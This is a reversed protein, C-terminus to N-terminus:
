RIITFTGATTKWNRNSGDIYRVYYVYAGQPLPKGDYTGDWEETLGDFHALRRGVRDFIYVEAVEIDKSCFLRFRRNSEIDGNPTIVNPALVFITDQPPPPDPTPPTGRELITLDYFIISDCEDGIDIHVPYGRTEYTFTVGNFVWPLMYDLVTDSFSTCHPCVVLDIQWLTDCGSPYGSTTLYHTDTTELVHGRFTFPGDCETVSLSMDIHDRVRIYAFMTDSPRTFVSKCAGYGWTTDLAEDMYQIIRKVEFRGTDAFTHSVQQGDEYRYREVVGDGYDWIISDAPREVWGHFQMPDYMCWITDEPLSDVPVDNVELYNKGRQLHAYSYVSHEGTKEADAVVWFPGGQRNEVFHQARTYTVLHSFYHVYAYSYPTGPIETFMTDIPYRNFYMGGVDATRTFIHMSHYYSWGNRNEDVWFTQGGNAPGNHWWEVPVVVLTASGERRLGGFNFSPMVSTLIPHDSTIYLANEVNNILFWDSEHANVTLTRTPHTPEYPNMITVTTSDVLGTFQIYDHISAMLNPVLFETGAYRIPMAQEFLLDGAGGGVAGMQNGQFVAIRKHDRAKIYTGSLDVYLSDYYFWASRVTDDDFHRDAISMFSNCPPSCCEPHYDCLYGVMVNYMMGRNLTVTVVSDKPRGLWDYDGLTIDVVTNDETAVVQFMGMNNQYTQVVYEDRLMETPLLNTVDINGSSYAFLYVCITDTSTIHFGKAQPLAAVQQSAPVGDELTDAFCLMRWPIEVMNLTDLRANIERRSKINKTVSFDILENEITVSCNHEAMFYLCAHNDSSGWLTRPLCFWFDNGHTAYQVGRHEYLRQGLAM